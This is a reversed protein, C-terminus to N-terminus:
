KLKKVIAVNQIYEIATQKALENITKGSEEAKEFLDTAMYYIEEFQKELFEPPNKKFEQDLYIMEGGNIVFGPVYVINKEKLTKEIDDNSLIENTSGTLVKCNLQNAVEDTILHNSACSVFIDCKQKYIEQPKVVKVSPSIDQIAKIKDYVTDTITISINKIKLLENVLASGVEGVGQVVFSLGKLEERNLFKRAIAKFGQMMGKAISIIPTYGKVIYREDMGLLYDSERKIDLMDQHTISASRVLYFKGNLKNIFIGLARFFMENKVKNANGCLSLGAGGFPKRLLAARYTNYLAMLMTNQVGIDTNEYDQIRCTAIAPGLTTDNVAIVAKLSVSPEEFFVLENNNTKQMLEFVNM